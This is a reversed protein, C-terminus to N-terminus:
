KSEPDFELGGFFIKGLNDMEPAEVFSIDDLAANHLAYQTQQYAPAFMSATLEADNMNAAKINAKKMQGINSPLESAQVLMKNYEGCIRTGDELANAKSCTACRDMSLVNPIRNARHKLGGSACGTTGSPSAYASADIFVFGSAGEYDQRISALKEAGAERLSASFRTELLSTLDKGAFGENMAQRTWSLMATVEQERPDSAMVVYQDIPRYIPGTYTTQAPQVQARRVLPALDTAAMRFESRNFTRRILAVLPRGSVGKEVATAIKAIKEPIKAAVKAIQAEELKAQREQNQKEAEELGKWAAERSIQPLSKEAAKNPAGSYANTGATAVLMSATHLIAHPVATSATLRAVDEEALMGAQGWRALTAHVRVYPDEAAKPEIPAPGQVKQLFSTAEKLSVMPPRVDNPLGSFASAGKSVVIEAAVRNLIDAGSLDKQVVAMAKHLPILGAAIWANVKKWAAQRKRAEIAPLPDHVVQAEVPAAEFIRRAEKHTVREVPTVHVPRASVVEAVRVPQSLFARRLAERPNGGSAVKRGSGMLIPAYHNFAEKWPVELVAKKKCITCYGDQIYTASKLTKEDVLIYKASKLHKLSEKWKGQEYGPYASARIFVRGALGHEAMIMQMAKRVRPAELGIAAVAEQIFEKPNQGAASRRMAKQVVLKLESASYKPKSAQKLSEEYRARDLDQGHLVGNTRSEVGWAQELEPIANYHPNKPLRDLDQEQLELWSLDALGGEKMFDSLDPGQSLRIASGDPVGAEPPTGQAKFQELTGLGYQMDEFGEMLATSADTNTILDAPLYSEGLIDLQKGKKTM